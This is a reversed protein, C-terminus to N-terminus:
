KTYGTSMMSVILDNLLRGRFNVVTANRVSDIREMVDQPIRQRGHPAYVVLACRDAKADLIQGIREGWDEWHVLYLTAEEAKGTDEPVTVEIINRERFLRSDVLLCKLSASRSSSAFVAIRRKALGNGLRLLAPFVGRMWLILGYGVVGVSCITGVLGVFNFFSVILNIGNEM